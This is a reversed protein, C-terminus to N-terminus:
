GDKGEVMYTAAREDSMDHAGDGASDRKDDFASRAAPRSCASADRAFDFLSTDHRCVRTSAAFVEVRM